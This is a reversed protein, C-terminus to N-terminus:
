PETHEVLLGLSLEIQSRVLHLVGAIEDESTRLATALHARVHELIEVRIAAIWRSVTSKNVGYMRGIADLAVADLYCLRLLTRARPALATLAERFAARVLPQYRSKLVALEPTLEASRTLEDLEDIDDTRERSAARRLRAHERLAVVRVWAGLPGQASYGAIRPAAGAAGVLIRDRVRQQVEDVVTRDREDLWSPIRAIHAAELLQIAGPDGLACGVALYLDTAHLEPAAAVRAEYAARFAAEPVIATPLEARARGLWTEFADGSGM